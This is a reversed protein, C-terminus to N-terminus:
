DESSEAAFFVVMVIFKELIEEVQRKMKYVEDYMYFPVPSSIQQIQRM